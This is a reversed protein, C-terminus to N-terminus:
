YIKVGIRNEIEQNVQRMSQLYVPAMEILRGRRCALLSHRLAARTSKLESDTYDTFLKKM